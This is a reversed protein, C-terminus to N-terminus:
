HHQKAAVQKANVGVIGRLSTVFINVDRARAIHGHFYKISPILSVFNDASYTFTVAFKHTPRAIVTICTCSYTMPYIFTPWKGFKTILRLKREFRHKSIYVHLMEM